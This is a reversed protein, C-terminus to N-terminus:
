LLKMLAKKTEKLNAWLGEENTLKGLPRRLKKLNWGFTKPWVYCPLIFCIYQVVLWKCSMRRFYAILLCNIKTCVPLQMKWLNRYDVICIFFFIVNLIFCNFILKWVSTYGIYKFDPFTLVDKTWSQKQVIDLDNKKWIVFQYLCFKCFRKLYLNFHM